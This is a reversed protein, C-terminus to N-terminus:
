KLITKFVRLNNRGLIKMIEEDSYGRYILGRTVNPIKTIDDMGPFGCGGDFDSGLGLYDTGVLDVVYDVHDLWDDLKVQNLNERTVGEKIFGGCFSLNIVGGRKALAVIQQDTLNRHHNSLTKCNSHSAILPGKTNELVDWFGIENLHSIDVIIGLRNM